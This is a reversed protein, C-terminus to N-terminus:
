MTCVVTMLVVVACKLKIINRPSQVDENHREMVADDRKLNEVDQSSPALHSPAIKNQPTLYSGDDEKVSDENIPADTKIYYVTSEPRPETM